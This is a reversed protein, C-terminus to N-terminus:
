ATFSGAGKAPDIQLTFGPAWKHLMRDPLLLSPEAWGTRLAGRGVPHLPPEATNGRGLSRHFAYNLRFPAQPAAELSVRVTQPGDLAVSRVSPGGATEFGAIGVAEADPDLVLPEAAAFDVSLEAGNVRWGTPMPTIWDEGADLTAIIRGCLEGILAKGTADYRIHDDLPYPYLPGAFVLTPDDALAMLIARRSQWANGDGRPSTGAPQTVIWRPALGHAALGQAIEARAERFQAVYAETPTSRDAEGHLFLIDCRTPRAGTMDALHGALQAADEILGTLIPSIGGDALRYIGSVGARGPLSVFRLGGKSAARVACAPAQRLARAVAGAAHLLSTGRVEHMTAPLVPGIDAAKVRRGDRTFDAVRDPMLTGEPCYWRGRTGIGSTLTIVQEDALLPSDLRPRAVHQDANSQGYAMILLPLKM